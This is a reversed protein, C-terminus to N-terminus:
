WQGNRWWRAVAAIGIAALLILVLPLAERLWLWALRLALATGVVAALFRWYASNCNM